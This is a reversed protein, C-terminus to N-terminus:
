KELFGGTFYSTTESSDNKLIEGSNTHAFVTFDQRDRRQAARLILAISAPSDLYDSNLHFLTEYDFRRIVQLTRHDMEEAQSRILYHSFDVSAVLVAGEQLFPELVDLLGDAEALTVGHHLILPAVKAQPLYHRLFPLVVGISHEHALTDEDLVAAGKEVLARVVEEKTEVTGEPTQWNAYGTIIKSGNNYHNPGVLIILEPQQPELAAMFDAILRGALLHHPVVGERLPKFLRPAQSKLSLYHRLEQPSVFTSSHAPQLSEARPKQVGGAPSRGELSYGKPSDHISRGGAGRAAGPVEGVSSDPLIFRGGAALMGGFVLLLILAPRRGKNIGTDKM